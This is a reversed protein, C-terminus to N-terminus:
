IDTGADRGAGGGLYPSVFREFWAFVDFGLWVELQDRFFFAVVALAIIVLIMQFVSKLVTGLVRGLILGAIGLAIAGQVPTFESMSAQLYGYGAGVVGMIASTYNGFSRVRFGGGDAM